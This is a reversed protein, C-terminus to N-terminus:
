RDHKSAKGDAIVERASKTSFVGDKVWWKPNNRIGSVIFHMDSDRDFRPMPVILRLAPLGNHDLIPTLGIIIDDAGM